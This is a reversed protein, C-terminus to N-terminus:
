NIPGGHFCLRLGLRVWAGGVVVGASPMTVIRTAYPTPKGAKSPWMFTSFPKDTFYGSMPYTEPNPDFEAGNNWNPCPLPKIKGDLLPFNTLTM